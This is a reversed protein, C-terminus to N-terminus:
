VRRRFLLVIIVILLVLGLGGGYYHYPPEYYFRGGGFLLLLIVLCSLCLWRKIGATTRQGLRVTTENALYSLIYWRLRQIGRARLRTGPSTRSQM